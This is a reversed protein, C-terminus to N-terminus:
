TRAEHQLPLLIVRQVGVAKWCQYKPVGTQRGTIGWFQWTAAQCVGLRGPGLVAAYHCLRIQKCVKGTQHWTLLISMGAQM